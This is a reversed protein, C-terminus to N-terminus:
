IATDSGHNITTWSSSWYVPLLGSRIFVSRIFVDDDEELELDTRGKNFFTSGKNHVQNITARATRRILDNAKATKLSNCNVKILEIVVAVQGM